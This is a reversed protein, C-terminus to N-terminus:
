SADLITGYGLVSQGVVMRRDATCLHIHTDVPVEMPIFYAYLLDELVRQMGDPDILRDLEEGPVQHIHVQLVPLDDRFHEGLLLSEGLRPLAMGSEGSPLDYERPPGFDISVEKGLVASFCLATLSWDGAVQSALPLLYCLLFRQREDLLDEYADLGWLRHLFDPFHELWRAELQEAEIRPWYLFQEFPLFFRRAEAIQRNLARSKELPSPYDEETRLFLGEPLTDFLGKRAMGIQWVEMEPFYRKQFQQVEKGSRRRAQGLPALVLQEMELDPDQKLLAAALVEPRIDFVARYELDRLSKM